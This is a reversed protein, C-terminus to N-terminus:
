QPRRRCGARRRRAVRQRRDGPGDNSTSTATENRSQTSRIVRGDPDFTESRSEVRNHDFEPGAVQVRAGQQGVVGAVIDEIQRQLRRETATRREDAALGGAMGEADGAGDALLRGREDVISVREPNMGEIASAVLHRIARVHSPELDGRAAEARDLARPAERDREFLRREPIALHM